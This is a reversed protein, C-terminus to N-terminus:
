AFRGLAGGRLVSRMVREIAEAPLAQPSRTLGTAIRAVVPSVISQLNARISRQGGAPREAARETIGIGLYAIAIASVVFHTRLQAAKIGVVIGTPQAQAGHREVAGVVVLSM